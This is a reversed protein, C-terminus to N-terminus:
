FGYRRGGGLGDANAVSVGTLSVYVRVHGSRDNHRSAGVM